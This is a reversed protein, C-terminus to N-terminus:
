RESAYHVEDGARTCTMRAFLYPLGFGARAGAVALRSAADLSVFWVGPVEGARVYTRVNLEPFANATPLPPLWRVRPRATPCAVGGVWAAGGVAGGELGAPLLRQVAAPAVRWHAFLLDEWDMTLAWPRAPLPWPRHATHSLAPHM